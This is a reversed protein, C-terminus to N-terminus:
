GNILQENGFNFLRGMQMVLMEECNGLAHGVLTVECFIFHKM